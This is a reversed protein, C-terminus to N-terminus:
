FPERDYKAHSRLAKNEAVKDGVSKWRSGRSWGCQGECKGSGTALCTGTWPRQM